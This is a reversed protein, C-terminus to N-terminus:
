PTSIPQPRPAPKRRWSTPWSTSYSAHQRKGAQRGARGATSTTWRSTSRACATGEKGTSFAALAQNKALYDGADYTPNIEMVRSMVAQGRPRALAFGSLGPLKGAAIAQALGEVDGRPTGDPNMGAVLLQTKNSEGARKDAMDQGRRTTANTAANDPTQGKKAQGTVTVAQGHDPRHAHNGRPRGPRALGSAAQHNRGAKRRGAPLRTEVSRIRASGQGPRPDARRGPGGPGARQRHRPRPAPRRVHRSGVGRRRGPRGRQGARRPLTAHAPQHGRAGNQGRHGQGQRKPAPRPRTPPRRSARFYGKVNGATALGKLYGEGGTPDAQLAARASQDDAVAQRAADLKLGGEQTKCPWRASTPKSPRCRSRTSKRRAPWCHLPTRQWTEDKSSYTKSPARAARRGRARRTPTTFGQHGLRHRQLQGRLRLRAGRGDRWTPRPTPPTTRAWRTSSATQPRAPRNRPTPRPKASAPWAPWATLNRPKSARSVGYARRIRGLGPGPQFPGAGQAGAGSGSMGSAAASRDIGATGQNLRFQYGPDAALRRGDFKQAFEGGTGVGAMIQALASTGAERYPAQDARTQALQALTDQRSIDFQRDSTAQAGQAAQEQASAAKNSGYISAGTVGVAGIAAWGAATIGLSM